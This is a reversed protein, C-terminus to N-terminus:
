FKIIRNITDSIFETRRNEEPLYRGIVSRVKDVDQNTLLASVPTGVKKRDFDITLYESHDTLHFSKFDEYSYNDEGISFGEPGIKVQVTEPKKHAIKYLAYGGVVLMIITTWDLGRAFYLIILAVLGIVGGNLFWSGSKAYYYFEPARWSLSAVPQSSKIAM